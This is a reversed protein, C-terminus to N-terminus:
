LTTQLPLESSAEYRGGDIRRSACRGSLTGARGVNEKRCGTADSDAEAPLRRGHRPWAAFTSQDGGADNDAICHRPLEAEGGLRIIKGAMGTGGAPGAAIASTEAGNFGEFALAPTEDFSALVVDGGGVPPPVVPVTNFAQSGSSAATNANSALDTFKGAAVSVSMTGAANEAPTLELLYKMDNVKILPSATGGAVVIDDITFSTGVSESFTFTFTVAGSATAGAINDDIILTPAVKDSSPSDADGGGCAAVLLSAALACASLAFKKSPQTM